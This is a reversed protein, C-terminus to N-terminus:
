NELILDLIKYYATPYYNVIISEFEYFSNAIANKKDPKIMRM